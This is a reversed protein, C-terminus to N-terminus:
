YYEIEREIITKLHNNRLSYTLYIVPNKHTDFDKYVYSFAGYMPVIKGTAFTKCNSSILNNYEDYENTLESTLEERANAKRKDIISYIAKVKLNTKSDYYNDTILAYNNVEIFANPNDEKTIYHMNGCNDYMYDITNTVGGFSNYEMRRRIRNLADFEQLVRSEMEGNYNYVRIEKCNKNKDFINLVVSIFKVNENEISIDASKSILDSVEVKDTDQKNFYVCKSFM